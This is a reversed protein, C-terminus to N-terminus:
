YVLIETLLVTGAVSSANKISSTLVRTADVVGMDILNGKEGTKINYGETHTPTYDNFEANELVQLFPKKLAEKVIDVGVLESKNKVDVEFESATIYSVGGGPVIGEDLAAKASAVSDDIRDKKENAEVDSNGGVYIVAAKGNLYALRQSFLEKDDGQTEKVQEALYRVREDLAISDKTKPNVILTSNRKVFVKEAKGLVTWDQDEPKTGISDGVMTAGTMLALDEMLEQQHEAAGPAEIATMRGLMTSKEGSNNQTLFTMMSGVISPAVVLLTALPDNTLLTGLINEYNEARVAEDKSILLYVNELESTRKEVNNILLHHAYGRPYKTGSEISSYTNFNPSREILVDGRSTVNYVADAVIAGIEEDNNAAISAVHVLKEKDVKQSIENIKAVAAKSAKEIGNKIGVASLKNNNNLKEVGAKTIATAIISTSSTGDGAEAVTKFSAERLLEVGYQMPHSGSNISSMITIGDKTSVTLEHRNLYITNRGNPGLSTKVADNVFEFGKVLENRAEAGKVVTKNIM